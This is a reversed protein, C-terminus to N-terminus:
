ALYRQQKGQPIQLLTMLCLANVENKQHVVNLKTTTKWEGTILWYEYTNLWTSVWPIFSEAIPMSSTWEGKYPCYVCLIAHGNKDFGYIHHPMKGDYEKLAPSLLIAQPKKGIEYSIKVEYTNSNESPTIDMVIEFSRSHKNMQASKINTYTSKIRAYQTVLQVFPSVTKAKPYRKAM